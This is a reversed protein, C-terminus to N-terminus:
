QLYNPEKASQQQGCKNQPGLYALVSLISSMIAKHCKLLEITLCYNQPFMM